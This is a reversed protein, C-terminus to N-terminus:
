EVVTLKMASLSNSPAISAADSLAAADVGPVAVADTDDIEAVVGPDTEATEAVVDPDTDVSDAVGVLDIDASDAVIRRSM